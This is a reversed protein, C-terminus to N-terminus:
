RVTVGPVPLLLLPAPDVATGIPGGRRVEFHLHPANPNGTSGMTGIVQGLEVRDGVALGEAFEDLHHYRYADGADDQLVWSNGQNGTLVNQEVLVGDVCAVLPHGPQADSRWIDIGKHGGPGNAFSNGGFNDLMVLDASLEVPFGITRDLRLRVAQEPGAEGGAAAPGDIATGVARM